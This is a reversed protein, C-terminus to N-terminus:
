SSDCVPGVCFRCDDSGARGVLRDAPGTAVALRCLCVMSDMGPMSRAGPRQCETAGICLGDSRSGRILHSFVRAFGVMDQFPFAGFISAGCFEQVRNLGCAGM